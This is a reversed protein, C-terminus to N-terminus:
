FPSIKFFLLKFPASEIAAISAPKTTDIKVIQYLKGIESAVLNKRKVIIM